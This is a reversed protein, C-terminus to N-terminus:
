LGHCLTPSVQVSCRHLRLGVVVYLHPLVLTCHRPGQTPAFFVCARPRLPWPTSTLQVEIPGRTLFACGCVEQQNRGGALKPSDAPIASEPAASRAHCKAAPVVECRPRSTETPLLSAPAHDARLASLSFPESLFRRLSPVPIAVPPIDPQQVSSIAVRGRGRGRGRSRGRGRGLGLGLGQGQGRGWGRGAHGEHWPVSTFLM